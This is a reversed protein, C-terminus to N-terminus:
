VATDDVFQESASAAEGEFRQRDLTAAVRRSHRARAIPTTRDKGAIPLVLAYDGSPRSDAFRIQM